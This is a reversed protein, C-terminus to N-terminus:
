PGSHRPIRATAFEAFDLTSRVGSLKPNVDNARQTFNLASREILPALLNGLFSPLL